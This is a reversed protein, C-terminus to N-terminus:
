FIVTTNTVRFIGSIWEIENSSFNNRRLYVMKLGNLMYITEPLTTLLNNSLYFNNLTNIKALSASPISAIRNNNFSFSSCNSSSITDLGDLSTLQNNDLDILNLNPISAPLHNIICNSARLEKLSTSGYLTDLSSLRSNNRVSLLTLSPLKGVSWPLSTLLNQDLILETLSTLKSLDESLAELGCNIIFLSSLHNLNFLESPLASPSRASNLLHLSTLSSSLRSIDSPIVLSPSDLISLKQLSNLCFIAPPLRLINVLNLEIVHSNRDVIAYNSTQSPEVPNIHIPFPLSQIIQKDSTYSTGNITCNSQPPARCGNWCACKNKLNFRYFNQPNEGLAELENTDDTVCILTIMVRRIELSYMISPYSSSNTIWRASDQTGLVFYYREDKTMQCVAANICEGESFPKCPNYSYLYNSAVSPTVDPYAPKGDNRGLSTLDIVGQSSEFRCADDAIVGASLIIVFINLKFSWSMM